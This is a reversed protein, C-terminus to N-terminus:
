KLWSKVEKDIKKKYSESVDFWKIEKDRKWWTMQRKAFHWTATNLQEIMEEKSIKKMLYLSIFRYELGLSIMRKWSLGNKHLNEIEKLMGFKLRDIIRKYIRKKLIDDSCTLGIKLVDYKREKKIPPVKGLERAIEIARILRPKNKKDIVNAKTQDLSELEKLLEELEKKNLKIRLKKNPKVEAFTINDVVADIYFSTGGVIIPLKNRNLIEEIAKDALKKFDSVNFINKPNSIDLLYHPIDCMEKKTIKGSGLDLGKYVQRSDASIIEGNFKKALEVALNSKGSSTPGLIVLLKQM